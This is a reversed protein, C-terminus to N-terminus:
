AFIGRQVARFLTSPNLSTRTSAEAYTFWVREPNQQREEM